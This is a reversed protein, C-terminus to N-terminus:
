SKITNIQYKLNGNGRGSRMSRISKISKITGSREFSSRMTQDLKSRKLKSGPAPVNEDVREYVVSLGSM